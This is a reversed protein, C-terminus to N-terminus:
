DIAEAGSFGFGATVTSIRGAGFCSRHNRPRGSVWPHLSAGALLGEVPTALGFLLLLWVQGNM